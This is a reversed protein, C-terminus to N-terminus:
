RRSSIYRGVLDAALKNGAINWHTDNPRYLNTMASASRFSGLLDFSDIHHSQLQENLFKNPLSFDVESSNINISKLVREQLTPNVQLEDPIILVVMGIKRADCLNKIQVLYNVAKALAADAFKKKFLARKMYMWSREKEIQLYAEDTFAPAQDDYSVQGHIVQEMSKFNIDILYKILAAVDSLEYLRTRGRMTDWFDNGVFFSVLVMDPQLELGENALMALYDQPGIGPIGMNIVETRANGDLQQELLTLYNYRYPVVGFAFSDGLAVIRYTGAEKELKYEVDKYGRSNLHFDYDPAGPKGRFRKYSQDYFIASPIFHKYVRVTVEALVFTILSIVITQRALRVLKKLVLADEAL